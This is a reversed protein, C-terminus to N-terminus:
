KIRNFIEAWMQETQAKYEAIKTNYTEEEVTSISLRLAEKLEEKSWEPKALFDARNYEDFLSEYKHSWSTGVCPIGQTLASVCGHFRSCIIGRSSGILGKVKLPNTEQIIEISHPTAAKVKECLEGDHKGEH